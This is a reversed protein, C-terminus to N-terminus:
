NSGSRFNGGLMVTARTEFAFRGERVLRRGRCVRGSPGPAPEIRRRKGRRCGPKACARSSASFNRTSPRITALTIARGPKCPSGPYVKQLQAAAEKAERDHGLWANAAALDVLPFFNTPDGATSKSCWEIAQEWQALHSHLHCMFFQWFPVGPDRPSLRLAKEVSAFGKESHGLFLQFFGAAAYADAYNPDEAIATEAEATAPGFQRKVFFLWAKIGHAWSNDPQITLVANILEDARAIDTPPDKSAFQAVREQLVGALGTMALLNHPDLALAREFLNIM